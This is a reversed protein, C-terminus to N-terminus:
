NVLRRVFWHDEPPTDCYPPQWARLVWAELWVQGEIVPLVFTPDPESLPVNVPGMSLTLEHYGVDPPCCEIDDISCTCPTELMNTIEATIPAEGAPDLV